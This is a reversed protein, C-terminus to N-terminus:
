QQGTCRRRQEATELAVDGATSAYSRDCLAIPSPCRAIGYGTRVCGGGRVTKGREARERKRERERKASERGGKRGREREGERGRERSWSLWM